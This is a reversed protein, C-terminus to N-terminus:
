EEDGGVVKVPVYWEASGKVLINSVVAVIGIIIFTVILIVGTKCMQNFAKEGNDKKNM